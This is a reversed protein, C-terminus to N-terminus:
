QSQLENAKTFVWTRALMLIDMSKKMEPPFAGYPAALRVIRMAAEDLIKHGSTRAVEVREIEGDARIEVYLVLSGYLKGKAAEPYNLNGIREVKQRWGEVYMAEVAAATRPSFEKKRPRKQYEEIQREIQAEMRVIAMASQALDIGRASAQEPQEESRRAEAQLVQKSKAQTLLKQQRAELEQVRRQAEVLSDGPKEQQSPPLPTKARRNEDTNGGGDLNAQARAQAKDPKRASKANVLVVELTEKTVRTLRDPLKFHISLLIAHFALSAILALTFGRRSPEMRSLWGPWALRMAASPPLLAVGREPM